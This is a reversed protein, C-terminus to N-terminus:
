LATLASTRFWGRATKAVLYVTTGDDVIFVNTPEGSNSAPLSALIRHDHALEFLDEFNQQVIAAKFDNGIPHPQTSRM